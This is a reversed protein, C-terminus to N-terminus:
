IKALSLTALDASVPNALPDTIPLLWISLTLCAIAVLPHTNHTLVRLLLSRFPM